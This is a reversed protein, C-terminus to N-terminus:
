TALLIARGQLRRPAGEAELNTPVRGRTEGRACLDQLKSRNSRTNKLVIWVEYKRKQKLTEYDNEIFETILEWTAEPLKSGRPGRSRTHPLLGLYGNGYKAEMDRYQAVWYRLTRESLNNDDPLAEGRLRRCVLNARRNATRFDDENAEALIKASLAQRM